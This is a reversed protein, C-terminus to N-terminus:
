QRPYRPNQSRRISALRHRLIGGRRELHDTAVAVTNLSQGLHAWLLRRRLLRRVVRVARIWNRRARERQHQNLPPPQHPPGVNINARRHRCFFDVVKWMIVQAVTLRPGFHNISIDVRSDTSGNYADTGYIQIGFKPAM